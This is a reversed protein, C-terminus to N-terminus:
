STSITVSLMRQTVKPPTGNDSSTGEANIKEVVTMGSTVKGFLSYGGSKLDADLATAGGPVVVFFQSGNTNPGSNAMAVDGTAYAKPINENDFKYGPGGTGTGTPDGTQDMFGPIVRHFIVCHFFNQKALFVFSNVTNPATRAFLTITFTGATTKVTATYTKAKTITMAPPTKWSMTNVRTKTNTPCGAAVAKADATKQEAAATGASPTTTATAATTTTGGAATTTTGGAATTTTTKGAGAKTTTTTTKSSSKSTSNSSSVRWIVVGILAIVVVVIIGNRLLARRRARKAEAQRKAERAARQRARKESPM